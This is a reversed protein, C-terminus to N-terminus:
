AHFYGLFLSRLARGVRYGLPEAPHEFRVSVRSGILRYPFGDPLGLEVEFHSVLAKRGTTDRPDTAVSGGGERGFAASPLQDSAAPVTRLVRAPWERDPAFPLKVEVASTGTRIRGADDQSVIVRVRPPADPIVYGLIQGEKVFRGQLDEADQLWLRGASRSRVDLRRAREELARVEARERTVESELQQGRAADELRAADYRVQAADLRAHGVIVNEALAPDVLHVIEADPGVRNGSAAAVRDVFGSQGARLVGSDPLWLVGDVQTHYPMPLVFLLVGLAGAAAALVRRARLDATSGAVNSRLWGLARYLPLGLGAGVSWIAIVLGIAFYKTAVFVAISFMVFLRYAFSLPAYLAFWPAEGPASVPSVANRRRLCVHELLYVWYRVARQALNPIELADAAVYYGDYRLLPNANFFVTTVSALVAVDYAIARATGPSMWLWLYFAGAAVVLESLMGAAGVLMRDRRDAFAWASSADVYPVPLFILLMIGMDHVEGGRLRVAIGHGIEHIAKVVPFVLWLLVLNDFALVREAFNGSLESWHTGALLIAPAVWALWLLAGTRNLVPALVEVARKLFRDPDLLRFRLALPNLYRQLRQQRSQRRDRRALEALDPLTGSDLLDLGHLQGLLTLIEDQSPADEDGQGILAHWLEDLTTRGDLRRLIRWARRDFRHYRGNLRDEVVYWLRGRYRHAHVRLHDRLRPAVAGVRYWHGASLQAQLGGAGPPPAVARADM